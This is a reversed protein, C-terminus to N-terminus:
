KSVYPLYWNKGSLTTLLASASRSPDGQSVATILASDSAGPPANPDVRVGINLATTAGQALPGAGSPATVTWVNGGVTITYSDSAFGANTLQFTYTVSAGPAGVLAAAPPALAADYVTLAFDQTTTVGDAVVIGTVTRSVYNAASATLTYTGAPLGAIHYQGAANASASVFSGVGAADVASVVSGSIPLGGYSTGVTGTVSGVSQPACVAFRFAGVRTHWDGGTGAYYENVYQFTCGDEPDVGLMTYDGWRNCISQSCTMSQDGGGNTLTMETAPLTNLTDSVLRGTYRISPYLSLSSASYGLAMDGQRDMAISGMWRYLGDAPAYTAQQAISWGGDGPDRRLEYWRIGARDSGDALVTHNLALSQQAGTVRFAARYMLRDGLSDLRSSSVGLQPICQLSNSSVCPLVSFSAVPLTDNPEGYSGFTSSAPDAFNPRFEWVRLADAGLDPNTADDNVSVFFGPTGAPPAAGDLDAPLLSAYEPNVPFLDIQIMAADPEGALMAKRDFAAAGAGKPISGSPDFQNASMFYANFQPDPWVGFKSYDNFYTQGDAYPYDYVFWAGGPDATQSVAVCQHFPNEISFQSILWRHAQEDFLATPDGDNTSGCPTGPLAASWLANGKTPPVVVVPSGPNTIDWAEFFVNIWEFYYKRGSGPDYGIDGNPDPPYYNNPFYGNNNNAGDFSPLADLSADGGQATQRAPDARPPAAPAAPRTRLRPTAHPPNQSPAGQAPLAQAALLRLPATKGNAAPHVVIPKLLGHAPTARAGTLAPSGATQTKGLYALDSAPGSLLQAAQMRPQTATTGAVAPMGLLSGLALSAGLATALLAHARACGSRRPATSRLSTLLRAPM